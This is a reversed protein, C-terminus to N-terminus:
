SYVNKNLTYYFDVSIFYEWKIETVWIVDFALLAGNAVESPCLPCQESVM